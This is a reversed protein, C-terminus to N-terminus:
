PLEARGSVVWVLSRSGLVGWGVVETDQGERTTVGAEGAPCVSGHLQGTDPCTSPWDRNIGCQVKGSVSLSRLWAARPTSRSLGPGAPALLATGHRWCAMFKPNECTCNHAACAYGYPAFHSCPCLGLAPCPTGLPLLLLNSSHGGLGSCSCSLLCQPPLGPSGKTYHGRGCLKRHLLLM